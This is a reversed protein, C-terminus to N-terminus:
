VRSGLDWVGLGLGDIRSGLGQVRSGLGWGSVMKQEKLPIHSVHFTQETSHRTHRVDATHFSHPSHPIRMRPLWALAVRKSEGNCRRSQTSQPSGTCKGTLRIDAKRRSHRSQRITARPDM